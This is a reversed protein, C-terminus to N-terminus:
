VGVELGPVGLRQAVGRPLADPLGRLRLVDGRLAAGRDGPVAVDGAQRRRVRGRQEPFARRAPLAALLAQDGAPASLRPRRAPDDDTPGRGRRSRRLCRITARTATRRCWTTLTM